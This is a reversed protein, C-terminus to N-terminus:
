LEVEEDCKTCDGVDKVHRCSSCVNPGCSGEDMEVKCCQSILEEHECRALVRDGNIVLYSIGNEVECSMTRILM